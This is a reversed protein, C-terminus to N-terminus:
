EVEESWCSTWGRLETERIATESIEEITDEEIEFSDQVGSDMSEGHIIFKM